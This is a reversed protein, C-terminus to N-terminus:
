LKYIYGIGFVYYTFPLSVNVEKHIMYYVDIKHHKTFAYEIGAM